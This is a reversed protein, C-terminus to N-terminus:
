LNIKLHYFCIQFFIIVSRKEIMFSQSQVDFFTYSPSPTFSFISFALDERPIDLVKGGDLKTPRIFFYEFKHIQVNEM